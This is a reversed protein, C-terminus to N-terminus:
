LPSSSNGTNKGSEMAANVIKKAAIARRHKMAKEQRRQNQYFEAFNNVIIPIPLAIMLVGSVACVTGVCKGLITVPSMDGYGVTTMTIVAWWFTAPISSFSTDPEEKEAFYALSSFILVGMAVFLLLLGFEKYSNRITFGLSQLGTSHRALKMIRLVRMVRFIQTAKTMQNNYDVPDERYLQQFQFTAYYPLIALLDITNLGGKLFKSKSPSSIFRLVYELTFWAICVAEIVDLNWRATKFRPHNEALAHDFHPISNIVLVASSLLIFAISLTAVM